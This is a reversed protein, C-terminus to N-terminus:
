TTRANEVRKEAFYLVRNFHTMWEAARYVLGALRPSCVCLVVRRGRSTFGVNEGTERSVVFDFAGDVPSCPLSPWCAVFM